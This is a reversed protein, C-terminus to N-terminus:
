LYLGFVRACTQGGNDDESVDKLDEGFWLRLEQGAAVYLPDHFRQFVLFNSNSDFQEMDYWLSTHEHTFHHDKPFVIKNNSTTIVTNLPTKGVFPHNPACGWKSNYQNLNKACSNKDCTVSGSVHVLKIASLFGEARINFAGFQNEKAGFCVPKTSLNFWQAKPTSFASMMGARLGKAEEQLMKRLFAKQAPAFTNCCGAGQGLVNGVSLCTVVLLVLVMSGM